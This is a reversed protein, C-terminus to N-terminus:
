DDADGALRRGPVAFAHIGRRSKAALWERLHEIEPTAPLGELPAKRRLRRYAEALARYRDGEIGARRLGVANLRYHRVRAGFAMTYPLVDMVIACLGGVMALSGVRCFQHVMAGGGIFAGDGVQVYGGLAVGSAMIARDGVACDHAVHANNMLFCGSGIRTAGGPRSARSVTVGERFVNDDGILVFTEVERDCGLDQPEGGLVAHPHVRNRAGMRVGRHIVAHAGIESGAGVDVGAEILAGAGVKTGPGLSAAPDVWASPHIAATVAPM